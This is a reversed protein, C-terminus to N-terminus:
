VLSVGRSEPAPRQGQPRPPTKLRLFFLPGDGPFTEVEVGRGPLFAGGERLVEEREGPTRPSRAGEGM